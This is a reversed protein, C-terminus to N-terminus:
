RKVLEVRRNKARGDESDNPAKPALMAVGAPTLRNAAIGHKKVLEDVVAQARRKSLGLNYDLSGQNDTHGVVYLELKPDAKLLKAIEAITEASEPKVVAKDTDFYIGYLAVSGTEAIGKAMASADVRVMREEMAGEEVLDLLVAPGFGRREFDQSRAVVLQLHIRHAGDEKVASLLHPETTSIFGMNVLSEAGKTKNAPISELQYVRDPLRPDGCERGACRYIPQFGAAALANEYNRFVELPSRGAPTAYVRRSRKGEVTRARTFGPGGDAGRGWPGEAIVLDDFAREEFGLLVSGEYREVAPHDRGGPVDSFGRAVAPAALALATGFLFPLAPLPRM